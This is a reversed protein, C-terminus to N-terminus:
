KLFFLLPVPNNHCKVAADHGQSFEWKEMLKADPKIQIEEELRRFLHVSKKEKDSNRKLFLETIDVLINKM